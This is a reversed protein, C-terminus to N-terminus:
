EEAACHVMNALLAAYSANTETTAAAAVPTVEAAHAQANVRTKGLKCEAPTHITWAMHHECWNYTKKNSGIKTKPEGAKPPVKKWEKDQKQWKRNTKNKKTKTKSDKKAQDATANKDADPASSTPAQTATKALKQALKLQGKIQALEAAMAIIKDEDTKSGWLGKTKLYTYKDTAMAMLTKHTITPLESDLYMEHKCVIYSRFHSCPITQYADFLIGVPDDIKAGRAILQSYNKDFYENIKDVDGSVTAAYAALERLNARLAETTAVSDITALRM